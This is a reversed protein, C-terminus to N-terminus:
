NLYYQIGHKEAYRMAPSDKECTIHVTLKYSPLGSFAGEEILSVSAPIYVDHADGWCFTRNKPRTQFFDFRGFPPDKDPM